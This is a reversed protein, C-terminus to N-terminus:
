KPKQHLHDVVLLESIVGKYYELSYSTQSGEHMYELVIELMLHAPFFTNFHSEGYNYLVAIAMNCQNAIPLM